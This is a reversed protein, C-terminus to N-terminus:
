APEAAAHRIIAQQVTQRIQAVNFPKAIYAFADRQIAELDAGYPDSGTVVIVALGPKLAKLRKLVQLGSLGPLRLDLMVVDVPEQAVIQLAQEGELAVLVQYRDHLIAQLSERPGLEDDVVLVLPQRLIRVVIHGKGYRLSCLSGRLKKPAEVM